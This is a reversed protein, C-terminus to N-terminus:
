NNEAIIILRNRLLMESVRIVARERAFPAFMAFQKHFSFFLRNNTKMM